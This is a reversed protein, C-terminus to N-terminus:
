LYAKGHQKYYAITKELGERLSTKPKWGLTQSILQYDSYYDGIDIRKREAPFKIIKFQGMKAVDILLEALQKLSVVEESGLNFIKGDAKKNTAAM